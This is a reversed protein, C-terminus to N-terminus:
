LKMAKNIAQVLKGHGEGTSLNNEIDDSSLVDEVNTISGLLIEEPTYGLGHLIMVNIEDDDLEENGLIENLTQGKNEEKM